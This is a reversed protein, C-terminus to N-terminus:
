LHQRVIGLIDGPRYDEAECSAVSGWRDIYLDCGTCVSHEGANIVPLEGGFLISNVQKRASVGRNM